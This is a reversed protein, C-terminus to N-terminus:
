PSTDPCELVAYVPPELEQTSSSAYVPNSYDWRHGKPKSDASAINYPEKNLSNKSSKTGAIEELEDLDAYDAYEPNEVVDAPPPGTTYPPQYEPPSSPVIGPDGSTGILEGHLPIVQQDKPVENKRLPQYIMKDRNLSQYFSENPLSKTDHGNSREVAKVFCGKNHFVLTDGDRQTENTWEKNNKMCRAGIPKVPSSNTAWGLGGMGAPNAILMGEVAPDNSVNAYVSQSSSKSTEGQKTFNSDDFAPNKLLGPTQLTGPSDIAPNAIVTTGGINNVSFRNKKRQNLILWIFFVVLLCFVTASGAVIASIMKQGPKGKTTTERNIVETTGTLHDTAPATQGTTVVARETKTVSIVATSSLEKTSVNLISPTKTPTTTSESIFWTRNGKAKFVVCFSGGRSNSTGNSCSVELKMIYGFYSATM